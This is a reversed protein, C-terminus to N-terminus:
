RRGQTHTSGGAKITPIGVKEHKQEYYININGKM